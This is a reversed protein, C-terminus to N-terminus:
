MSGTRCRQRRSPTVGLVRSEAESSGFPRASVEAGPPSTEISVVGFARWGSSEIAADKPLIKRAEDLLSPAKTFEEAEILKTISSTQALVWRERSAKRWYWGALIALAVIAAAAGIRAGHSIGGVKRAGLSEQLRSLDKQFEEAGAYRKESDKQLLRRFIPKLKEPIPRDAFVGLSPTCSRTPRRSRRRAKSRFGDTAMEYLVVGLSFLDSRGDLPRSLLQEPSMYSLTGFVAGEETLREITPAETEVGARGALKAIGFDLVKVQGRPTLAVNAPKLDRHVIGKAHAAALAEAIQLALALTEELRLPGSAIRRDLTQGEVLEM